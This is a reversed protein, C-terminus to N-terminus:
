NKCQGRVTFDSYCRINYLVCTAINTLIRSSCTARNNTETTGKNSLPITPKYAYNYVNMNIM